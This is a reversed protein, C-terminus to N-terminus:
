ILSNNKFYEFIKEKNEKNTMLKEYKKIYDRLADKNIPKSKEGFAKYFNSYLIKEVDSKNLNLGHAEMGNWFKFDDDTLLFRYVNDHGITPINGSSSCYDTGFMIRDSYKTFIEKWLSVNKSMVGFMYTHPCIDYTLNPHKELLEVFKEPHNENFFIHALTIKLNPYKNLVSELDKHIEEFTLFTGNAYHWEPHKPDLGELSWSSEPDSSHCLISIQEKEAKAFFKDYLPDSLKVGLMKQYNPKTEIMKIGDLGIAMLDDLQEEPAFGEPFPPNVPQSLYVTGGHVYYQPYELKLIAAMINQSVDRDYCYPICVMNMDKIKFDTRYKELQEMYNSLGNKVGDDWSRLHVHCDNISMDKILKFEYNREYEPM